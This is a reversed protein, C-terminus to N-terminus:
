KKSDEEPLDDEDSEKPSDGEEEFFHFKKFQEELDKVVDEDSAAESADELEEPEASTEGAGTDDDEVDPAAQAAPENDGNKPPPATVDVVAQGDSAEKGAEPPKGKAKSAAPAAFKEKIVKKVDSVTGVYVQISCKTQKEINEIVDQDLLGAVVVSLVDGFRDIPVFLNTELEELKFLPVMEPAIYYRTVSLFPFSFQTSITRAIDFETVFGKRVLIEGILEGTQEQEELAEELHEDNVLGEHLLLEGLRKRTMRRINAM